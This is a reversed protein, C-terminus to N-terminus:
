HTLSLTPADENRQAKPSMTLPKLAPAELETPVPKTPQRGSFRAAYHRSMADLCYLDEAMTRGTHPSRKFLYQVGM